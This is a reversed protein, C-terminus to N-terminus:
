PPCPVIHCLWSLGSSVDRGTGLGTCLRALIESVGTQEARVAEMTGWRLPSKAETTSRARSVPMQTEMSLAQRAPSDRGVALLGLSIWPPFPVPSFVGYVCPKPVCVCTTPRDGWPEGVAKLGQKGSMARGLAAWARCIKQPGEDEEPSSCKLPLKQLIALFERFDQPTLHSPEHSWCLGLFLIQLCTLTHSKHINM